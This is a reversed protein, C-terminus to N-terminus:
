KRGKKLLLFIFIVSGMVSTIVSIPMEFPFVIIRALIDCLLLLIGGFIGVDLITKKINDGYYLSVINPVILGFLPIAGIVIFSVSSIISVIILGVYMIVEYNIGINKTFSEGMGVVTFKNAYLYAVVLPPLALYIYHHNYSIIHSFTGMNLGQFWQSIDFKSSIIVGIAGLISSYMIGVLPIYAGERAKINKVMKVFLLSTLMAFVFGFMFRIFHGRSGLIVFLILLGIQTGATTGMTSPSIYKNRNISQIILGSIGVSAATIVVTIARPLRTEFVITLAEKELFIIDKFGIDAVGIVSSIIILIILLVISYVRKSFM